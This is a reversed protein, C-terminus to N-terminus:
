ASTKKKKKEYDRLFFAFFTPYRRELEDYGVSEITTKFLHKLERFLKFPLSLSIGAVRMYKRKMTKAEQVVIYFWSAYYDL